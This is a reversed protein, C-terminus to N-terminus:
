EWEREMLKELIKHLTSTNEPTAATATIQADQGLLELYQNSFQINGDDIYTSKLEETLTIWVKRYQYRKKISNKVKNFAPQKILETHLAATQLEQPIGYTKNDETTISTISWLNTKGDTSPLMTFEFQLKEM